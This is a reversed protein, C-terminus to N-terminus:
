QSLEEVKGLLYDTSYGSVFVSHYCSAFLMSWLGRSRACGRENLLRVALSYSSAIISVYYPTLIEDAEHGRYIVMELM